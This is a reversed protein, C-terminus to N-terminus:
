ELRVVKIAAVRDHLGRRGGGGAISVLAVVPAVLFLIGLALGALIVTLSGTLALSVYALLAWFPALLPHYLVPHLALWYLLLRGPSPDTNNERMIGIGVVYQGVTQGRKMTLVYNFLLWAPVIAVLIVVSTWIQDDSPNERGSDSGLFINLFALAVFGMAFALLVLSDLVFALVRAGLGAYDNFATGARSATRSRAVRSVALREAM